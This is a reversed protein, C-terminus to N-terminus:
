EFAAGVDGAGPRIRLVAVVDALSVDVGRARVRWMVDAPPRMLGDSEVLPVAYRRILKVTQEDLHAVAAPVGRGAAAAGEDGSDSAGRCGCGPLSDGAVRGSGSGASGVVLVLGLVASRVLVCVVVPVWHGPPDGCVWTRGGM